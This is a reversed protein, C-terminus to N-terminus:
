DRELLVLFENMGPKVDALEVLRWAILGADRLTGIIAEFSSATYVFCHVGAYSEAAGRAREFARRLNLGRGALKESPPPGNVFDDVGLPRHFFRADLIQWVDARELDEEYARLLQVVTSPQRLYDFTFRRDPVSLFLHGCPTALVALQQLWTIPDAIHEIVHNAVILDFREVITAAFRKSKAVYDVNVIADAMHTKDNAHKAALEDRSFCDLYRVTLAHHQRFTPVDLAGIELAQKGDLGLHRELFSVRVVRKLPRKAANGGVGKLEPKSREIAKATKTPAADQTGPKTTTRHNRNHVAAV